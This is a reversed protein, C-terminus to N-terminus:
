FGGPAVVALNMCCSWRLEAAACIRGKKAQGKAWRTSLKMLKLRLFLCGRLTNRTMSDVHRAQARWDLGDPRQDALVFVSCVIIVACVGAFPRHAKAKGTRRWSCNAGNRQELSGTTLDPRLGTWPPGCPRGDAHGCYHLDDWAM